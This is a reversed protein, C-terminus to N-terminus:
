FGINFAVGAHRWRVLMGTVSYRSWAYTLLGHAAHGDYQPTFTWGRAIRFNAGFPFVFEDDWTGYLAGAYISVPVKLYPELDKSLTGYYARGHPTGIRDSSTGFSLAPRNGTERLARWNVLPGVEEALPNYEVGLQLDQTLAYLLTTRLKARDIVGGPIYRVGLNFRTGLLNGSGRV